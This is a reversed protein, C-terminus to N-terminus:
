TRIRLIASNRLKWAIAGVFISLGAVVTIMLLLLPNYPPRKQAPLSTIPVTNEKKNEKQKKIKLPKNKKPVLDKKAAKDKTNVFRIHSTKYQTRIVHRFKKKSEVTINRITDAQMKVWKGSKLNHQKGFLILAKENLVVVSDIKRPSIMFEKDPLGFNSHKLGFKNSKLALKFNKMTGSHSKHAVFKTQAFTSFSFFCFLLAFVQKHTMM